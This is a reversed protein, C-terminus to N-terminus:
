LFGKKLAATTSQGQLQGFNEDVRDFAMEPTKTHTKTNRTLQEPKRLGPQTPVLEIQESTDEFVPDLTLNSIKRAFEKEEVGNKYSTQTKERERRLEEEHEMRLAEQERQIRKDEEEERRRNSDIHAFLCL